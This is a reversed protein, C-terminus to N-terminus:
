NHQPNEYQKRVAEFVEDVFIENMCGFHNEPCKNPGHKGCPRCSLYKEVVITKKSYPFFGFKKVTPGFIAVTPVDLAAAIHM